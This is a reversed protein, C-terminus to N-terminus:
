TRTLNSGLSNVSGLQKSRQKLSRFSKEKKNEIGKGKRKPKTRNNSEQSGKRQTHEQMEKEKTLQQQQSETPFDVCCFVKNREYDKVLFRLLLVCAALSFTGFEKCISAAGNHTTECELALQTDDLAGTLEKM